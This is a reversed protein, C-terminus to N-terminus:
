HRMPPDLPPNHTICGVEWGIIELFYFFFTCQFLAIEVSFFPIFFFNKHRKYIKFYRAYVLKELIKVKVMCGGWM